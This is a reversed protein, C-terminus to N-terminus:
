LLGVKLFISPLDLPRLTAKRSLASIRFWHACAIVMEIIGVHKHGGGHSRVATARDLMGVSKRNKIAGAIDAREPGATVLANVM